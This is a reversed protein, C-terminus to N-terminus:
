KNLKKIGFVTTKFYKEHGALDCFSIIKSSLSCIKEIGLKSNTNSIVHGKADFGM